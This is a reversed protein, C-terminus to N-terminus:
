PCHLDPRGKTGNDKDDDHPVRGGEGLGGSRVRSRGVGSMVQDRSTVSIVNDRSLILIM